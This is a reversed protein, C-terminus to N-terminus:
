YGFKRLRVPVGASRLKDRRGDVARHAAPPLVAVVPALETMGYAQCFSAQPLARIADDLLTSLAALDDTSLATM